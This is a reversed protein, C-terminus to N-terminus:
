GVRRQLPTRKARCRLAMVVGAGFLLFSSPEPTVNVDFVASGAVDTDDSPDGGIIEFSGTYLGLPTGQPVDVNFLLGTYSDGAGLSLPYSNNFPSDDVTLPADVNWSDSNLFVEQNSNNTVTANFAFLDANGSQFPAALAISLPAANAAAGAILFWGAAAPLVWLSRLSKM